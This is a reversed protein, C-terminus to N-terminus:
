RYAIGQNSRSPHDGETGSAIKNTKALAKPDGGQDKEVKGKLKAMAKDSIMGSKALKEARKANEHMEAAHKKAHKRVSKMLTKDKMHDDARMITHMADRARWQDEDYKASIAESKAM